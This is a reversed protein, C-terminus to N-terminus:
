EIKMNAIVVLFYEICSKQLECGKVSEEPWLGGTGPHVGGQCSGGTRAM